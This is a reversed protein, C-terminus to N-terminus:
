FTVEETESSNQVDAPPYLYKHWSAETSNGFEQVTCRVDWTIQPMPSAPRDSRVILFMQNKIVAYEMDDYYQVSQKLPVHWNYYLPEKQHNTLYHRKKWLIRYLVGAQKHWRAQPGWMKVSTYPYNEAIDLWPTTTMEGDRKQLIFIEVWTGMLETSEQEAPYLTYRISADIFYAARCLRYMTAWNAQNDTWSAGWHTMKM